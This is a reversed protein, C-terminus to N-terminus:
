SSQEQHGAETGSSPTYCGLVALVWSISLPPLLDMSVEEGPILVVAAVLAISSM